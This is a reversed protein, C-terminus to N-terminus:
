GPLNTFATAADDAIAARGASARGMDPTAMETLFLGGAGVDTAVMLLGFAALALLRRVTCEVRTGARLRRTRM